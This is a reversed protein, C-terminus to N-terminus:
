QPKPAAKKLTLPMSAGSQSWDGTLQTGEQNLAGKFAGSVLRLQFEVALGKQVVDSLPLGTSGQDLSDLTATVTKDPQNKFHVAIRFPGNPTEVAGEWNGQLEASVAPSAKVLNAKAEGTRKLGATISGEPTTIACKMETPGELRCDFDPSSAGAVLRFKARKDDAQIETLPLDRVSLTSQNFTGAWAGNEGKVLDVTVQIERDPLQITGEWHGAPGSQAFAPILPVCCLLPALRLRYGMGALVFNAPSFNV